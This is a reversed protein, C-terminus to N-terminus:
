ANPEMLGRLTDPDVPKVVHHNFGAERALRKDEEQGWGTLAVLVTDKAWARKRLERAAGYGDLRPMGIDLLVVDPRFEEAIELAEIGDHACRVEYGHMELLMALSTASDKNDDAVVIRRKTTSANINQAHKLSSPRLPRPSAASISQPVATQPTSM